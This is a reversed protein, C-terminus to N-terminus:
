SQLEEGREPNKTVKLLGQEKLQAAVHHQHLQLFTLTQEPRSM